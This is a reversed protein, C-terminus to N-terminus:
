YPMLEPMDDIFSYKKIKYAIYYKYRDVMEVKYRIYLFIDLNYINKSM